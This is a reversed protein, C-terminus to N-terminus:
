GMSAAWVSIKCLMKVIRFVAIEGGASGAGPARSEDLLWLLQETVRPRSSTPRPSRIGLPALASPMDGSRLSCQSAIDSSTHEIRPAAGIVSRVAGLARERMFRCM